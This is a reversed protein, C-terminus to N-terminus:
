RSKIASIIGNAPTRATARSKPWCWKKDQVYSVAACRAENRCLDQCASFSIGRVGRRTLDKGPIDTGPLVRMSMRRGPAGVCGTVFDDLKDDRMRQAFGFFVQESPFVVRVGFDRAGVISSELYEPVTFAIRGRRSQRELVEWSDIPFGEGDVTVEFAGYAVVEPENLSAIGIIGQGHATDGCIMMLKNAGYRSTHILELGLRGGVNRYEAVEDYVPGTVVRWEELLARPVWDIEDARTSSMREYFAPEARQQRIYSVLAASITQAQSMAQSGSMDSGPASFQHVGIRGSQTLYRYDAGLYALVCASACIAEPTDSSGVQASTIEGRKAIIEGISKGEFLNGGPSDFLFLMDRMDLHDYDSLAAELRDADGTRIEGSISVHLTAKQIPRLDIMEIDIEMAAATTVLCLTLIISALLRKLMDTEWDPM